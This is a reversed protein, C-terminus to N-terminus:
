SISLCSVSNLITGICPSSPCSLCIRQLMKQVKKAFLGSSTCAKLPRGWTWWINVRSNCSGRSSLGCRTLSRNRWAVSSWRCVAHCAAVLLSPTMSVTCLSDLSHCISSNKRSLPCYPADSRILGAHRYIIHRSLCSFCHNSLSRYMTVLRNFLSSSLMPFM